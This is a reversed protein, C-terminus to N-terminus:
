GGGRFDHRHHFLTPFWPVALFTVSLLTVHVHGKCAPFVLAVFVCESYIVIITKGHCCHNHSHAEDNNRTYM